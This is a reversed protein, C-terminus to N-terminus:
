VQLGDTPLSIQMYKNILITKLEKMPAAARCDTTIM